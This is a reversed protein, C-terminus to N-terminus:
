LRMAMSSRGKSIQVADMWPGPIYEMGFNQALGRVAPTNETLLQVYTGSLGLLKIQKAGTAADAYSVDVSASTEFSESLNCCAARCLEGQGFSQVDFASYRSKIVSQRRAEVTVEDLQQDDPILVVMITSRDKVRTTDNRYGLFSTVLLKTQRILEIEFIGEADTTTGVTTEAWWVNAGALPEGKDDLVVGHLHASLSVSGLLSAILLSFRLYKNM